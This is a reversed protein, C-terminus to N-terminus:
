TATLTGQEVKGVIDGLVTHDVSEGAKTYTLSIRAKWRTGVPSQVNLNDCCFNLEYAVGDDMGNNGAPLAADFIFSEATARTCTATTETPELLIGVREVATGIGNRVTFMVNGNACGSAGDTNVLKFETCSFGPSMTCSTPLWRDPSFVGFYALAAIAVLVVLIAWGYTMLFEM